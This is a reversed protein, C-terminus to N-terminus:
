RPRQPMKSQAPTSPDAFSAPPDRQAARCIFARRGSRDGEAGFPGAFDREFRLPVPRQFLSAIAQTAYLIEEVRAIIHYPRCSRSARM